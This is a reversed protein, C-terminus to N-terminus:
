TRAARWSQPAHGDPRVRRHALLWRGATAVLRDRYRGWHDSGHQTISLFYSSASATTPGHIDIVVSSIHHRVYPRDLAAVLSERTSGLFARIAAHGRQPARGDIELVGDATFLEVLDDFRGGDVCQAYRALTDRIQERAVLEWLEM